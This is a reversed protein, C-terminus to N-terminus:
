FSVVNSEYKSFDQNPDSTDTINMDFGDMFCVMLTRTGSTIEVGRHYLNGPHILVQGKRLVLTKKLCRFYTGGGQISLNLITLHARCTISIM